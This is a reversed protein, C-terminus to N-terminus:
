PMQAVVMQSDKPRNGTESTLSLKKRKIGSQTPTSRQTPADSEENLVEIEMENQNEDENTSADLWEQMHTHNYASRRAVIGHGKEM